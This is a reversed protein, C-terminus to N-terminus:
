FLVGFIIFGKILIKLANNMTRHPCLLTLAIYAHRILGRHLLPRSQYNMREALWLTMFPCHLDTYFLVGSIIFNEILNKLANNMTRHPYLLTLACYSNLWNLM